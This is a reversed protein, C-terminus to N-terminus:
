VCAQALVLAAGSDLLLLWLLLFLVADDNDDDDADDDDDAADDDDVDTRHFIESGGQYVAGEWGRLGLEAWDSWGGTTCLMSIM